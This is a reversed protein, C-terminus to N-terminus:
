LIIQDLSMSIQPISKYTQRKTKFFWAQIENTMVSRQQM